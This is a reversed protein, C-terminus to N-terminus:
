KKKAPALGNKKIYEWIKKTMQAPTVPAKGVIKAFDADPTIQYGGFAKKKTGVM